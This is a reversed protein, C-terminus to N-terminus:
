IEKKKDKVHISDNLKEGDTNHKPPCENTNTSTGVPWEKENSDLSPDSNYKM